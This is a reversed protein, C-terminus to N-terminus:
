RRILTAEDGGIGFTGPAVVIEALALPDRALRLDVITPRDLTVDARRVGESRFGLADVDLTYAGPPVSPILFRGDAGTLTAVRLERLEVRAAGIPNGTEVERM